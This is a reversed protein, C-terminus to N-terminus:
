LYKKIKKCPPFKVFIKGLKEFIKPTVIFDLNGRAKENDSM